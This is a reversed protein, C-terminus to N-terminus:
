ETLKRKKQVLVNFEQDLAQYAESNSSLQNLQGIITAIRNDILKLENKNSVSSKESSKKMYRKFTLNRKVIREDKFILLEQALKELLYRDHSAFLITGKYSLLADELAERSKLDLHNTPEDLILLDCGDLILDALKILVRQGFSLLKIPQNLIYENFGMHVLLTMAESHYYGQIAKINELASAEENFTDLNQSLYGVKASPTVRLSGSTLSSEKLLMKIVTTKGSGNPGVLAVRKGTEIIFSSANFLIREEFAKTLNHAEIMRHGLRKSDIFDLNLKKEHKPKLSKSDIRALQKLRSKRQRDKKESKKRYHEKMGGKAQAKKTANQHSKKSLTKLWRIEEQIKEEKKRAKEYRHLKAVYAEKKLKKYNTYNGPYSQSEGAEIELIREVSADLFYRDHSIILLAGKFGKLADILWQIGDFDLHNTPEDLIILDPKGLWAMALAMKTLEGGSLGELRSNSWHQVGELGLYHCIELFDQQKKSQRGKFTTHFHDLVTESSQSLHNIKLRRNFTDIMGEDAKMKGTIIRALTTKGSGNRGILGIREGTKISFNIEKLVKNNKFSKKIGIGRLLEM